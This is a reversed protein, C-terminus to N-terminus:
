DGLQTQNKQSGTFQLGGSEEKWPTKWAHISSHTAMEKELTDEMDLSQVPSKQWMNQLSSLNKVESGGPKGFHLLGVVWKLIRAHLIGHAFSGPLICDMPDCLSLFSQLSKVSM